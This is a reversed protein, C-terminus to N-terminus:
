WRGTRERRGVTKADVFQLPEAAEVRLGVDSGVVDPSGARLLLV